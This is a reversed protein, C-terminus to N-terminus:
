PQWMAGEDNEPSFTLRTQDTGDTKMIYIENNGDQDSSFAIWKGDPSWIPNWDNADSTTLRIWNTGDTNM